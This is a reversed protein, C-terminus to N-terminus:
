NKPLTGNKLNEELIADANPNFRTRLLLDSLIEQTVLIVSAKQLESDEILIQKRTCQCILLCSIPAPTGQRSLHSEVSGRRSVLKGLKSQADSIKLTCEVLVVHGAQTFLALDPADSDTYPVAQFGLLFALTAVAREFGKADRSNNLLSDRLREWGADFAQLTNARVTRARHSGIVWQRRAPYGGISLMVLAGDAKERHEILQGQKILDTLPSWTISAAVQQRDLDLQSWRLGVSLKACDFSSFAHLKLSLTGDSFTSEPGILDIPTHVYIDIQPETSISPNPLALFTCADALGDFPIEACRLQSSITSWRLSDQSLRNDARCTLNIIYGWEDDNPLKSYYSIPGSPISFHINGLHIIGSEADSLLKRLEPTSLPGLVQKVILLEDTRVSVSQAAPNVGVQVSAKLLEYKERQGRAILRIEAYTGDSLWTSSASQFYALYDTGTNM